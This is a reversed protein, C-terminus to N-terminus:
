KSYEAYIVKDMTEIEEISIFNLIDIIELSNSTAKIKIRYGENLNYGRQSDIRLKKTTIGQQFNGLSFWDSQKNGHDVRYSIHWNGMEVGCRIRGIKKWDLTGLTHWPTELITSVPDGTSNTKM